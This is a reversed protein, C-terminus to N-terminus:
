RGRALDEDGAPLAALVRETAAQPLPAVTPNAALLALHTPVSVPEIRRATLGAQWRRRAVVVSRHLHLGPASLGRM